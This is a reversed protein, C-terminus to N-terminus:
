VCSKISHVPESSMFVATRSAAIRPYFSLYALAQYSLLLKVPLARRVQLQNLDWLKLAINIDDCAPSLRSM